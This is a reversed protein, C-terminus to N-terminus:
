ILEPPDFEPGQAEVVRGKRVSGDLSGENGLKTVPGSNALQPEM